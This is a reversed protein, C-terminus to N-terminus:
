PLLLTESMNDKYKVVSCIVTYAVTEPSAPVMTVAESPTTVGQLVPTKSKPLLFPLGFHIPPYNQSIHQLASFLSFELLFVSFSNFYPINLSLIM